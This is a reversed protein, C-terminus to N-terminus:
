SPLAIRVEFGPALLDMTKLAADNKAKKKNMAGASAYVKDDIFVSCFYHDVNERSLEEILYTNFYLFHVFFLM